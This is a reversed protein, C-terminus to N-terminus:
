NIEIHNDNGEDKDAKPLNISLIGGNYNATIESINVDPLYFSRAVSSSNIEQSIITGEDNSQDKQLDHVANVNLTDNDYSLHIGDKRFGPLEVDVEYAKGNDRVNAKMNNRGLLEDFIGNGFGNFLENNM